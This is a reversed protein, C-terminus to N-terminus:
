ALIFIASLANREKAILTSHGGGEHFPVRTYADSLSQWPLFGRCDFDVGKRTDTIKRHKIVNILFIYSNTAPLSYIFRSRCVIRVSQKLFAPLRHWSAFSDHPTWIYRIWPVLSPVHSAKGIFQHQVSLAAQSLANNVIRKCGNFCFLLTGREIYKLLRELICCRCNFHFGTTDTTRGILNRYINTSISAIGQGHAPEDLRCTGACAVRHRFFEGTFQHVGSASLARGNLFTLLGVFHRLRIFGESM